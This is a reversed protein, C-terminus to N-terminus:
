TLVTCKGMTLLKRRIQCYISNDPKQGPATVQSPAEYISFETDLEVRATKSHRSWYTLRIMCCIDLSDQGKLEDAFVNNYKYLFRYQRNEPIPDTALSVIITVLGTFAWLLIGFHLYHLSYVATYWWNPPFDPDETGCAPMKHSIELCFRFYM